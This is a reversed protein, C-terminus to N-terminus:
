YVTSHWPYLESVPATKTRMFCQGLCKNLFHSYATLM